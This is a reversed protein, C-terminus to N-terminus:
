SCQVLKARRIVLFHERQSGSQANGDNNVPVFDPRDTLDLEGGTCYEGDTRANSHM